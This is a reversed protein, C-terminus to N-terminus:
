PLVHTGTDFQGAAGLLVLTTMNASLYVNGFQQTVTVDALTLGGALQVRDMGDTASGASGQDWDYVYSTGPDTALVFRDAGDGGFLHDTGGGGELRDDGLGGYLNDSGTGGTLNDNGPGTFYDGHMVLGTSTASADLTDNGGGAGIWELAMADTILMTAGSGDRIHVYDYDAGGFVQGGAADPADIFLLDAGAGGFFSDAAGDPATSLSSGYLADGGGGGTLTDGGDGGILIDSANGGTLNDTGDRGWIAVTVGTGAATVTDVGSGGGYWEVQAATMDFTIDQTGTYHVFDYGTGGMTAGPSFTDDVDIFLVDDGAGGDLDDSGPGGTLYDDGGNGVITDDGGAGNIMDIGPNGGHIIEGAATGTVIDPVMDAITITFTEEM